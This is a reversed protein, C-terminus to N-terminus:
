DIALVGFVLHIGEKCRDDPDEHDYMDKQCGSCIM